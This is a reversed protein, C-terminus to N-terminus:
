KRGFVEYRRNGVTTTGFLGFLAGALVFAGIVTLWPILWLPDSSSFGDGAAEFTLPLVPWWGGPGLPSLAAFFYVAILYGGVMGGVILGMLAGILPAIVLSKLRGEVKVAGAAAPPESPERSKREDRRVPADRRCDDGCFHVHGTPIGIIATIVALAWGACRGHNIWAPNGALVALGGGVLTGFHAGVISVFVVLFFAKTARWVARGISAWAAM